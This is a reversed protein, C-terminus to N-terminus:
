HDPIAESLTSLEMEVPDSGIRSIGSAGNRDIQEVAIDEDGYDQLEREAVAALPDDSATSHRKPPTFDTVGSSCAHTPEVIRPRPQKMPSYFYILANFFGQTPLLFIAWFAYQFFLFPLSLYIALYLTLERHYIRSSAACSM